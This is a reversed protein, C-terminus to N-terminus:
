GSKCSITRLDEGLECEEEALWASGDAFSVKSLQLLVVMRDPLVAGFKASAVATEGAYIKVKESQLVRVSVSRVSADHVDLRWEVETIRQKDNGNTITLMSRLRTSFGFNDAELRARTLLFGPNASKHDSDRKVPLEESFTGELKFLWVTRLGDSQIYHAGPTVLMADKRIKADKRPVKRSSKEALFPVNRAVVGLDAFVGLVGILAVPIVFGALRRKFVLRRTFVQEM